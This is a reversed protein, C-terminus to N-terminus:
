IPDYFVKLLVGTDCSRLSASPVVKLFSSYEALLQNSSSYLLLGMNRVRDPGSFNADGLGVWSRAM